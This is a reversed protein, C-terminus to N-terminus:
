TKYKYVTTRSVNLAKAIQSVNMHKNNKLFAIVEKEKTPAGNKNRWEGDPDDFSQLLRVRALHESQSRKNRKNAPLEIATIKEIDKRPFTMYRTEYCELASEVDVKTFPDSPNLANLFPILNYADLRLKEEEIDCKIAYIALVMICFYRHGPTAGTKIQRIWWEYLDSKIHWKKKSKDGKIIVKEYWDPFKKKAEELTYESKYALNIDKIRIEEKQKDTLFSHMYELTVHDKNFKFVKNRYGRKTLSGAVRFGQSIGQHQRKDDMSTYRNWMKDTLKFKMNKLLTKANPYLPIPNDFIYYLHVGGGSLILYNPTPYVGYEFGGLLAKINIEGVDDIDFIMAYMKHANDNTKNKGLYTIGNLLSLPKNQAMSLHKKFTDEFLIQRIMYSDENNNKYLLLPNSKLNREEEFNKQIFNQGLRFIDKYMDFPNVEKVNFMALEYILTEIQTNDRRTKM